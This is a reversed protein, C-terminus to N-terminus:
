ISLDCIDCERLKTSLSDRINHITPSGNWIDVMSETALNGLPNQYFKKMKLCPYMAGDECISFFSFGAKCLKPKKPQTEEKDLMMQKKFACFKAFQQDDLKETLNGESGDDKPFIMPDYRVPVGLRDGIEQQVGQYSGFNSQML